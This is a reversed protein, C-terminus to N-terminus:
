APILAPMDCYCFANKHCINKTFNGCKHCTNIKKDNITHHTTFVKENKTYIVPKDKLPDTFPKLYNLRDRLYM